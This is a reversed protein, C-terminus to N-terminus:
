ATQKQPPELRETKWDGGIKGQRWTRGKTKRGEGLTDMEVDLDLSLQARQRREGQERPRGPGARDPQRTSEDRDRKDREMGQRAERIEVERDRERARWRQRDVKGMQMQGHAMAAWLGQGSGRKEECGSWAIVLHARSTSITRIGPLASSTGM